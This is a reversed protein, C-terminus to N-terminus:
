SKPGSALDDLKPATGVIQDRRVVLWEEATRGNEPHAFKVVSHYKGPQGARTVFDKVSAVWAKRVAEGSPLLTLDEGIKAFSAM